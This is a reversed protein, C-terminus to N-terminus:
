LQDGVYALAVLLAATPIQWALRRLHGPLKQEKWDIIRDIQELPLRVEEPSPLPARPIKPLPSQIKKM